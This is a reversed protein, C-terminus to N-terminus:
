PRGYYEAGTTRTDIRQVSNTEETKNIVYLYNGNGWAMYIIPATLITNYFGGASGNQIITLPQSSWDSGIFIDGSESLTFCLASAEYNTYNSWDFVLELDGLVGSNDLIPIKYLAQDSSVTATLVYLFNNFVKLSIIDLTDLNKAETVGDTLGDENYIDVLDITSGTGGVFLNGNEDFDLDTANGNLRKFIETNEKETGQEDRYLFRQYNVFYVSGTPGMKMGSAKALASSWVASDQNTDVIWFQADPTANMSVIVNEQRDLDLSYIDTFQDFPGYELVAASLTYLNEYKGFVFAGQVAVSIQVSDSVLNPPVVGITTSTAEVVNGLMGNFYVLNESINDSFYQGTITLTDIGAFAGQAPEVSSVIPASGGQDNEDWVSDPADPEECSLIFISFGLLIRDSYFLKM